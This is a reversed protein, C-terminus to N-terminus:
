GAVAASWVPRVAAYRVRTLLMSARIPVLQYGATYFAALTGLSSFRNELAPSDDLEQVEKELVNVSIRATRSGAGKPTAIESPPQLSAIEAPRERSGGVGARRWPKPSRLPKFPRLPNSFWRM